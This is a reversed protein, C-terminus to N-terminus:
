GARAGRDDRLAGEVESPCAGRAPSEGAWGAISVVSRPLSALADAPRSRAGSPIVSCAPVTVEEHGRDAGRVISGSKVGPAGSGGGIAATVGGGALGPRGTLRLMRPTVCYRFIGWADLGVGPVLWCSRKPARLPDWRRPLGRARGRAPPPHRARDRPVPMSRSGGSSDRWRRTPLIDARQVSRLEDGRVNRPELCAALPLTRGTGPM